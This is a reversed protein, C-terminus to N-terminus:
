EHEELSGVRAGEALSKGVERSGGVDEEGYVIAVVDCLCFTTRM